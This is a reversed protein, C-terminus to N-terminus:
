LEGEKIRTGNFTLSMRRRAKGFLAAAGLFLLGIVKEPIKKDQKSVEPQTNVAKAVTSVITEASTTDSSFYQGETVKTIKKLSAKKAPDIESDVNVVYVANNTEAAHSIVNNAKGITNQGTLVVTANESQRTKTKQNALAIAENARTFADPLPADGYPEVKAVEAADTTSVTGLHAVQATVKLSEEKDFVAVIDNITEAPTKEAESFDTLGSRDVVLHITNDEPKDAVAPAWAYANVGGVLAATLALPGMAKKIRSFRQPEGLAAQNPAGFIESAENTEAIIRGRIANEVAAGVVTGVGVGGAVYPAVEIATRIVESM